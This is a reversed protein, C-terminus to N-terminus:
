QYKALSGKTFQEPNAIFQSRNAATQFYYIKKKYEFMPTNTRISVKSGDVPDMAIAPAFPLEVRGGLAAIKEKEEETANKPTVPAVEDSIAPLPQMPAPAIPTNEITRPVEAMPDSSRDACAVTAALLLLCPIYHRM